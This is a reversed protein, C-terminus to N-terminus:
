ERLPLCLSQTCRMGCGYHGRMLNTAKVAIVWVDINVKTCLINDCYSVRISIVMGLDSSPVDVGRSGIAPGDERGDERGVERM